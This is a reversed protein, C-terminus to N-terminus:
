LLRLIHLSGTMNDYYSLVERLIEEADDTIPYRSMMEEAVETTVSGVLEFLTCLDTLDANALDDSRTSKILKIYESSHNFLVSEQSSPMAHLYFLTNQFAVYLEDVVFRNFENRKCAVRIFKHFMKRIAEAFLTVTSQKAFNQFSENLDGFTQRREINEIAEETEFGLTGLKLGGQSNM